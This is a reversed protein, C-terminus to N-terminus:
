FAGMDREQDADGEGDGSAPQPHKHARPPVTRCTRFRKAARKFEPRTTIHRHDGLTRLPYRPNNYPCTYTKLCSLAPCLRAVRLYVCRSAPMPEVHHVIAFGGGSMEIRKM